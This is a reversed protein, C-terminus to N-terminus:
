ELLAPVYDIATVDCFRRAAALAANGNGCAVDLVLSGARADAAECLSEGVLQLTTGIIAFDGSAWMAQQRNKVTGFDLPACELVQTMIDEARRTVDGDGM